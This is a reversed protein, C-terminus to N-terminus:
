PGAAQRWTMFGGRYRSNVGASSLGCLHCAAASACSRATIVVVNEHDELKDVQLDGLHPFFLHLCCAEDGGPFRRVIM